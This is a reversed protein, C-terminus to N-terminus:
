DARALRRGLAKFLNMLDDVYTFVVPIVLLSLLTSTLLGGIVVLAMPARFSPEAGLGLAVPMMGAVMAITTMLIPRARKHCADVIAQSREMGLRNRAMIAYDVLLISNKTVIGMLMLIGIIAPMSFANGTLLLALFAGGISLPLALLITAPQLFDHFLLVLVVYICGIGILMATAFSGFLEAMRQQDGEVPHAVTPPLNRMAPLAEAEETVEGIVRDGLEVDISANRVRDLRDIQAPGSALRISAVAELPITAGGVVLPLQGIADPDERFPRELRIRIPVQRQPLNLKPLQVRFDGATALRVSQAIAETTVGLDAARAHDVVLHIEPRQLNESSTLNGLGPLGRLEKEVARMATSLADADDSALTVKLKAGPEGSIIGIRVGPLTRLRARFEDEIAVQKRDRDLRHTLNVTLTAKRVDASSGGGLPGQDANAAAGVAAFVSTVEPITRLITVARATMERTDELRSGPALELTVTSQARDAVPIFGKPILPILMLSGAFLALALAVTLSRWALCRRVLGLYGRMLRGPGQDHGLPRMFFAAMMPTLLRAVLLSALVAAAATVGFSRFFKGPVGGMFATPLFVAVLTLTTAIVAIGIEEVAEMAAKRPSKGMKLHRSINEIEVIADDVLIGVVLALALLTLTDLSFGAVQMVLFTPLISLPLAAASVLTARWDGLFWWVVIIALLAGEYLLEMSGNYNDLVRGVTNYAESITVEPHREQFGQMAKRVAKAVTVESTGRTRTVEVAIVPRGDLFAMSAPEAIGDSVRAVEGLALHRGGALPLEIAELQGPLEVAGLTRLSQITDGVDGRGGSLDRQVRRVGQSIEAVGVGLAALNTPDLDVRIERDVGGIRAFRGVGRVALIAKAMDNDVFWTLDQPDLTASEVAFVVIPQGSTTKKSVVPNTLDQPLDNRISDVANRVENLAVEADKDITFEASIVASGDTLRTRIHEVGGLTALSDEIKRAVESEMQSPAAGELGVSVTIVPVEIDPFSQIGLARFGGVGLFTLLGFLLLAPIPHRISWTSLNM